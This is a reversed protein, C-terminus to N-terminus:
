PEIPLESEPRVCAWIRSRERSTAWRLSDGVRVVQDFILSVGGIVNELTKQAALAVAIGGVGLGALAATTNVGFYHLAVLVGAFIVLLDVVRRALRLISTVGTINRRLLLRSTYQETWSNLRILLWVSATITIVTATSSWFQRTTLPLNVSSNIWYIVFALLLLRVPKPLFEPNPLDPKRYLRRRLLGILPSLFRNLLVTFYYLLPMGVFVAFWQFLPIGAFRTSVVFEPLVEDLSAM